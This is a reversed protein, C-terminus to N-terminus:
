KTVTNVLRRGHNLLDQTNEQVQRSVQGLTREGQKRMLKGQKTLQQRVHAGQKTRLLWAFGLVGLASLVVLPLWRYMACRREKTRLFASARWMGVASRYLVLLWSRLQALSASVQRDAMPSVPHHKQVEAPVDDRSCLADRGITKMPRLRHSVERGARERQEAGHAAWGQQGALPLFGQLPEKVLPGIQTRGSARARESWQTLNQCLQYVQCSQQLTDLGQHLAATM